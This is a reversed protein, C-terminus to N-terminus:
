LSVRHGAGKIIPGNEISLNKEAVVEASITEVRWDQVMTWRSQLDKASAEADSKSKFVIGNHCWEGQVLVEYHHFEM